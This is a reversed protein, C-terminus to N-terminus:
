LNLRERLAEQLLQSCNVHAQEAKTNLWAPLSVNKRISKNDTESRYRTTDVEILTVFQDYELAVSQPNRMSPIPENHDEVSCMYVSLADQTMRLSEELTEGGTVCGPADPVTVIYGGSPNPKFVAPYVYYM